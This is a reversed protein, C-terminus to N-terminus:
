IVKLCNRVNGGTNFITATAEDKNKQKKYIRDNVDDQTGSCASRAPTLAQSAGAGHLRQIYICPCSLIRYHQHCECSCM